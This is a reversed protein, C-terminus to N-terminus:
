QSSVVSMQSSADKRTKFYNLILTAIGFGGRQSIADALQEGGFGMLAGASGDEEDLGANLQGLVGDSTSSAFLPDKELPKLLVQMLTAEFEHAAAKLQPSNASLHQDRDLSAPLTSLNISM